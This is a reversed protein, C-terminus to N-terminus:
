EIYEWYTYVTAREWGAYLELYKGDVVGMYHHACQLIYKGTPHEKCFREVNMAKKGKERKLKHRVMGFLETHYDCEKLEINSFPCAVKRGLETLTEYVDYWSKNTVACISRVVCDGVDKGLPNPNFEKYYKSVTM